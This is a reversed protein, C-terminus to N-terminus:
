RRRAEIKKTLKSALLSAQIQPKDVDQMGHDCAAQGSEFVPVAPGEAIAELVEGMDIQGAAAGLRLSLLDNSQNGHTDLWGRCLAGDAQHCGFLEIPQQWTEHDYRPLKQYECPAWVGSPVDRRYPCSECPKRNVHMM